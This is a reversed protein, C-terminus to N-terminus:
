SLLLWVLAAPVALALLCAMFLGIWFWYPERRM